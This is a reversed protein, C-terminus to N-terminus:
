QGVLEIDRKLPREGYLWAQLVLHLKLRPHGLDHLVGQLELSQIAIGPHM